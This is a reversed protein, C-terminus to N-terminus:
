DRQERKQDAPQSFTTWAVRGLAVGINGVYGVDASEAQLREEDDASNRSGQGEHSCDDGNMEGEVLVAVVLFFQEGLM